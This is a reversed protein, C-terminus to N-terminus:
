ETSAHIHRELRTLVSGLPSMSSDRSVFPVAADLESLRPARYRVPIVAAIIRMATRALVTDTCLAFAAPVDVTGFWPCAGGICSLAVTLPLTVTDLPGEEGVVIVM